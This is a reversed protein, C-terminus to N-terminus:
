RGHPVMLPVNTPLSSAFFFIIKALGHIQLDPILQQTVKALGGVERSM